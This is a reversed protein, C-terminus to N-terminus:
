QGADNQSRQGDDKQNKQGDDKQNTQGDDNQNRGRDRSLKARVAKSGEPRRDQAVKSTPVILDTNPLSRTKSIRVDKPKAGKGPKAVKANNGNRQGDDNQNQQGDDKQYQQGDDNQNRQGDDKQQLDNVQAIPVAPASAAPRCWACCGVLAAVFLLHSRM